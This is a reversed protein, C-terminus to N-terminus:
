YHPVPSRLGLRIAAPKATHRPVGAEGSRRLGNCGMVRPSTSPQLSACPVARASCRAAPPPQPLSHSASGPPRSEVPTSRTLVGGASRPSILRGQAEGSNHSTLELCTGHCPAFRTAGESCARPHNKNTVSGRQVPPNTLKQVSVGLKREAM